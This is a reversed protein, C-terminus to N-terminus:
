CLAIASLLPFCPFLLRHIIGLALRPVCEKMLDCAARVVNERQPNAAAGNSVVAVVAPMQAPYTTNAPASLVGSRLAASVDDALDVVDGVRRLRIFTPGIPSVGEAFCSVVSLSYLRFCLAGDFSDCIHIDLRSSDSPCPIVLSQSPAASLALPSSPLVSRWAM